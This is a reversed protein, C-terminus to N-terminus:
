RRSRGPVLKQPKAGAKVFHMWYVRTADQATEGELPVFTRPDAGEIEHQCYYVREKDRSHWPGLVRFSAPDAEAIREGFAYVSRGDTAFAHKLVRFAERGAGRVLRASGEGDDHYFVSRGDRAYGCRSADEDDSTRANGRDLVAFTAADCNKCVGHNCYVRRKDKAFLRNLVRFSERDAERLRNNTCFVQRADRGWTENLARFSKADAWPIEFRDWYVVGGRKWFKFAHKGPEIELGAQYRKLSIGPM